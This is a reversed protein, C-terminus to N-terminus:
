DTLLSIDSVLSNANSLMAEALSLLTQANTLLTLDGGGSAACSAAGAAMQTASMSSMSSIDNVLGTIQLILDTLDSVVKEARPRANARILAKDEDSLENNAKVDQAYEGRATKLREQSAQLNDMNDSNAGGVVVQANALRTSGSETAVNARTRCNCSNWMTAYRDQLVKHADASALVADRTGSSVAGSGSMEANAQSTLQKYEDNNAEIQHRLDRELAWDCDPSEQARQNRVEERPPQVMDLTAMEMDTSSDGANQALADAQGQTAAWVIAAAALVLLMLIWIRHRRIFVKM